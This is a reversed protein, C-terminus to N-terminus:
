GGTLLAWLGRKPAAMRALLSPFREILADLEPARHAGVLGLFGERSARTGATTLYSVLLPNIPHMTPGEM